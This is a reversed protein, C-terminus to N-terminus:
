KMNHVYMKSIIRGSPSGYHTSIYRLYSTKFTSVENSNHTKNFIKNFNTIRTVCITATRQIKLTQDVTRVNHVEPSRYRHRTANHDDPNNVTYDPPRIDSTNFFMRSGAEIYVGFVVIGVNGSLSKCARNSNFCCLPPSIAIYLLIYCYKLVEVRKVFCWTTILKSVPKWM